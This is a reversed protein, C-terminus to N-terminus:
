GAVLVRGASGGITTVYGLMVTTSIQTYLPAEATLHGFGALFAYSVGFSLVYSVLTEAFPNGLAGTTYGKPREAFDAEFVIVYSVLLSFLVILPFYVPEAEMAMMRLEDTPAVNFAFFVAGVLTALVKQRDQSLRGIRRDVNKRDGDRPRFQTMALAAGIACPIAELAIMRAAASLPVQGPHIRGVVVLTLASITIGIGFVILTDIGLHTVRGRRFGGFLISLVVIGGAVAMMGLLVPESVARAYWWMEMTYLLPLAGLLAGACARLIPDLDGNRSKPRARAACM